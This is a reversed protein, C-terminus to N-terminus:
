PARHLLISGRENGLLLQSGGTATMSMPRNLVASGQQELSGAPEPCGMLTQVLDSVVLRAGELRWTGGMGNCGFRAGIRSGDFRVHYDGSSPTARGNVAAVRWQSGGLASDGPPLQSSPLPRTCAAAVAVLALVPVASRWAM